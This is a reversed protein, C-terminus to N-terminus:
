GRARPSLDTQAREEILTVSWRSGSKSVQGRQTASFSRRRKRARSSFSSCGEDMEKLDSITDESTGASRVNAVTIRAVKTDALEMVRLMHDHLARVWNQLEM